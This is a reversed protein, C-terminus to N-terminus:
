IRRQREYAKAESAAKTEAADKAAAARAMASRRALERLVGEVPAGAYRRKKQAQERTRADAAAADAAADAEEQAAGAAIARAVSPPDQGRMQWEPKARGTYRTRGAEDVATERTWLDDNIADILAQQEATYEPAQARPPPRLGRMRAEGEMSRRALNDVPQATGTYLGGIVDPRVQAERELQARREDSEIISRLLADAEAQTRPPRAM